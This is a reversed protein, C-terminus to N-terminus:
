RFNEATKPCTATDLTFEIRGAPTGNIAIDFFVVSM